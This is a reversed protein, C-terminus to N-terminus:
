RRSGVLEVVAAAVRDPAAATRDQRGDLTFRPDGFPGFVAPDHRATLFLSIVSVGLAAAFHGTATDACVHVASDRVADLAERLSLRGVLDLGAESSLHPDNPGGLIAVAFGEDQLLRALALWEDPSYRKDVQSGGVQLTAWPRDAGPLPNAIRRPLIPATPTAVQFQDRVLELARDVKHVSKLAVNQNLTRAFADTAPISRRVPAGSLRVCLATKSHGQFDFAVDYHRRRLRRIARAQERWTKAHWARAKWQQRPLVHAENLLHETDLICAPESEVAWDIVADPYATRLATAAYATMVCDGIARFRVLLIRV